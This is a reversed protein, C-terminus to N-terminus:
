QKDAKVKSSTFQVRKNILIVMGRAKSNFTFHFVPGMWPCRLRVHDRDRLHTEEMKGSGSGLSLGLEPFPDGDDPLEVRSCYDHLMEKEEETLRAKWLRLARDVFRASRLGLAATVSACRNLDPGAVDVLKRLTTLGTSTLAHSLGPLSIEQVDLRAEHIPPEELLWHLSLTRELRRSSFLTWTKFISEIIEM